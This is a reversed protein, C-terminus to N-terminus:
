SLALSCGSASGVDLVDIQKWQVFPRLINKRVSSSCLLITSALLLRVSKCRRQFAECCRQLEILPNVNEIQGARMMAPGLVPSDSHEWLHKCSTHLRCLASVSRSMFSSATHMSCQRRSVYLKAGHAHLVAVALCLAEWRTYLANDDHSM